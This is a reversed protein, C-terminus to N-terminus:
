GINLNAASHRILDLADLYPHAPLDAVEAGTAITRLRHTTTRVSEEVPASSGM